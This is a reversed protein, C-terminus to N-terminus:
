RTELEEIREQLARPALNSINCSGGCTSLEQGFLVKEGVLISPSSYRQFRNHQDLNDQNIEKWRAVGAQRLAERARDTNPCETFYVLTVELM